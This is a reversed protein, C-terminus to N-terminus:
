QFTLRPVRRGGLAPSFIQLPVARQRLQKRGPEADEGTRDMGGVLIM